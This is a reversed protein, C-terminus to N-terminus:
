RGREEDFTIEKYQRLARLPRGAHSKGKIEELLEEVMGMKFHFVYVDCPTTIRSLMEEIDDIIMHDSLRAVKKEKRVFSLDLILAKLNKTKNAVEEIKKCPGTDGSFILAHTNDEVLYGVTPIQHNVEIPTFSLGQCTYTEDAKIENFIYQPNDKNPIKAFDPWITGNFVHEKLAKIAPATAHITLPKERKHLTASFLFPLDMIHDFHTHTLFLDTIKLTEEASLVSQITGADILITENFLLSTSLCGLGRGGDCGLIKLHM